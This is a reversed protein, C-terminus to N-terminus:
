FLVQLVLLQEKSGLSQTITAKVSAAITGDCGDLALRSRTQHLPFQQSRDRFGM